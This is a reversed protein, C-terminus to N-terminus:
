PQNKRADIADLLHSIDGDTKVHQDSWGFFALGFQGGRSTPEDSHGRQSLLVIASFIILAISKANM